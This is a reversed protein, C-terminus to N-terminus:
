PRFTVTTYLRLKHRDPPDLPYGAGAVLRVSPIRLVNLAPTDLSTEVGAM